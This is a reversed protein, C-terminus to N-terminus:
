TACDTIRLHQLPDASLRAARCPATWAAALARSWFFAAEENGLRTQNITLRRDM